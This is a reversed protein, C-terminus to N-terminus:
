YWDAETWPTPKISFKNPLRASVALSILHAPLVKWHHFRWPHTPTLKANRIRMRIRGAVDGHTSLEFEFGDLGDVIGWAQAKLFAEKLTWYTLFREQQLNVPQNQIDAQERESFYRRALDSAASKRTLSEVDVGVPENAIAVVTLGSTHALNFHLAKAQEPLALIPKQRGTFGYAIKQPACDLANALMKRTLAHSVLFSHRLAPTAFRELRVKETDDLWTQMNDMLEPDTVESPDLYRIQVTSQSIQASDAPM